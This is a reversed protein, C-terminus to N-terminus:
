LDAKWLGHINCYAFAMLPRDSADLTFTAAPEDGPNLCWATAGKDTVLYIWEIHHEEVMPHPVSGVKVTVVNGAVTVVPVHKEAAADTTNPILEEMKEGCCVVRVGSDVVKMVINGCHRCIYFTARKM